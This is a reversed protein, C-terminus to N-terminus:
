RFEFASARHIHPADERWTTRGEELHEAKGGIGFVHLKAGKAEGCQRDRTNQQGAKGPVPEM